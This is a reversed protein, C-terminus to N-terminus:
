QTEEGPKVGGGGNRNQAPLMLERIKGRSLITKRSLGVIGGSKRKESPPGIERSNSGPRTVETGDADRSARVIALFTPRLTPGPQLADLPLVCFECVGERRGGPTGLNKSASWASTEKFAVDM